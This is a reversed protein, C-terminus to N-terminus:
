LLSIPDVDISYSVGKLSSLYRRLKTNNLYLDQFQYPKKTKIIIHFRYNNNIKEIPALTPGLIEFHKNKIMSHVMYSSKEVLALKSGKLIIRIVKSFPPYNLNLRDALSINYYKKTDMMTACDIYPDSSNFTQIIAKGSKKGRGSRGCVQYLLQFIREGSRFDPTFLGIDSNIVGVLTVNHFNFGKSVMQTGILIDSKKNQFKQLLYKYQNKKQLQILM